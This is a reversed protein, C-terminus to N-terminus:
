QIEDDFPEIRSEDIENVGRPFVQDSIYLSKPIMECPQMSVVGAFVPVALAQHIYYGPATVQIDYAAYPRINGPVESDQAPPAPVEVTPTKGSQDTSLTQVVDRNQPDAGTIYVSAGEIPYAGQASFVSVRLFGKSTYPVIRNM